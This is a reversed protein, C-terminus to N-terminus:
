GQSGQHINLIGKICNLQKDNNSSSSLIVTIVDNAVCNLLVRLKTNLQLAAPASSIAKQSGNQQITIILGSPPQESMDVEVVYMSTALATHNYTDLQNLVKTKTIGTITQAM